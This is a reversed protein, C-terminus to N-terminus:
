IAVSFGPLYKLSNRVNITYTKNGKLACVRGGHWVCKFILIGIDANDLVDLLQFILITHTAKPYFRKLFIESIGTVIHPFQGYACNNQNTHKEKEM